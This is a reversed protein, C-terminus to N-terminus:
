RDVGGYRRGWRGMSKYVMGSSWDSGGSRGSMKQGGKEGSEEAGGEWDKVCWGVPGIQGVRGERCKKGVKRVQIKQGVQGM